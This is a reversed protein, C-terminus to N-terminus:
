LDHTHKINLYLYRYNKYLLLTDQLIFRRIKFPPMIKRTAFSGM